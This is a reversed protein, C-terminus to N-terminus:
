SGLFYVFGLTTAGLFIMGCWSLTHLVLGPRHELPVNDGCMVRYNFYALVPSTLFSILAAFTLLQLLSTTFYLIVVISFAISICIWLVHLRHFTELPRQRLLSWCAALSRPYGDVCTLTTSFMTVFAAFLILPRSWDGINRAYLDVLQTSFALGGSDFTAGSGFMVLAGLSLFAVALLTTMGYGLYFDTATERPSATHGTQKERSFIWLSSWVSLDIPAPMWGLLSVLFAFSAITWPSPGTFDPPAVGGKQLALILALITAVALLAMVGKAASDLIRYRGLIVLLACVLLLGISLTAFSLSIFEFGGLLAGALFAVAAINISGTLINISLFTYLYTNGRRQYGSLLSEGTAAAYRHGYLFFPLKLLNAVLILGLLSWGFEAGARTSWVLHSGGVAACAVMIGPGLAKLLSRDTSSSNM